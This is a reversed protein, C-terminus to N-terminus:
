FDLNMEDMECNKIVSKLQDLSSASCHGSFIIDAKAGNRKFVVFPTTGIFGGREYYIFAFDKSIGGMIFRRGPLGPDIVDTSNFPQNLEAIQFKFASRIDEPFDRFNQVTEYDSNIIWALAPNNVDSCRTQFDSTNNHVACGAFFIPFLVGWILIIMSIRISIRGM